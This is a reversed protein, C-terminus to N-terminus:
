RLPVRREGGQWVTCASGMSRGGSLPQGGCRNKEALREAVSNLRQVYGELAAANKWTIERGQGDKPNMLVQSPNHM